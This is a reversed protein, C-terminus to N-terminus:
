VSGTLLNLNNERIKARELPTDLHRPPARGLPIAHEYVLFSNSNARKLVNACMADASAACVSVRCVVCMENEVVGRYGGRRGGRGGVGWQPDADLVAPCLPTNACWGCAVVLLVVQLLILLLGLVSRRQALRLLFACSCTLFGALNSRALCSGDRAQQPSPSKGVMGALGGRAPPATVM